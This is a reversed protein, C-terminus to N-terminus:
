AAFFLGMFLFFYSVAIDVSLHFFIYQGFLVFRYEGQEVRELINM